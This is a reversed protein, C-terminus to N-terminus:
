WAMNTEVTMEAKLSFLKQNPWNPYQTPSRKYIEGTHEGYQRFHPEKRDPNPKIKEAVRVNRKPTASYWKRAVNKWRSLYEQKEDTIGQREWLM